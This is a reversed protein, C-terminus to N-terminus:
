GDFTIVTISPPAIDAVLVVEVDGLYGLQPTAAADDGGPEEVQCRGREDLVWGKVAEGPPDGIGTFPAPGHEVCDLLSDWCGDEGGSEVASEVASTAVLEGVLHEGGHPLLEAAM